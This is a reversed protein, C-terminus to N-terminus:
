FIIIILTLVLDYDLTMFIRKSIIEPIWNKSVSNIIKIVSLPQWKNLAQRHWTGHFTGQVNERLAGLVGHVLYNKFLRKPSILRKGM